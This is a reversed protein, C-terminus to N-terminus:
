TSDLCGEGGMAMDHDKAQTERSTQRKEVDPKKTRTSCLGEGPGKLVLTCM